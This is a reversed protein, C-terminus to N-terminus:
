SSAQDRHFRGRSLPLSITVTTGQDPESELTFEGGHLKVINHVLTLGLGVGRSAKLGGEIKEFPQLIREKEEEAIGAGNDQVIIDLADKRRRARLEIRGKEQTHAIANRLLNMVAQKMRTEDVEVKGVNAPCILELGIDEKRAWESALAVVNELMARIGVPSLDLTMQGAEFSSLDLIDNILGLLKESAAKIDGTYGRQKENLPGFYQRDLIENFGMIANLPTRLQYSVNALFDLKLKEAAELAANKERLANEVRVTDTVDTYTILVGGDPLPVTAYDVQAGDKRAFRGQRVERELGLAILKERMDRWMFDDFYGKMKEIIKSIHPEGALDEPNLGWLRGFSPNWLKLRGDGGYVAVGEALNDLTEKQVAVLTNYSSELELRSTVDEFNMMLGGITHPVALMRVASGDPLYLMEDHPDILGTFMDTWSQKFKRFDSQEPLRRTERLKEMVEGLKPKTNLWGDELGWLQSFGSNYFTLRQDADYIAIASRLQELLGRNAAEDKRIKEELAEESTYDEATGVTIGRGKVPVETVQLLFRSGGIVARMKVSQPAGEELAKRALDPGVPVIRESRKRGQSVLEKQQAVIESPRAGVRRAYAVNCWTIKQAGDRIWVPFPLSDLSDQLRENEDRQAAQEEAFIKSAGLQMTIDELWLINYQARGETDQGRVGSIKFSKTESDNKVHLTFSVGEEELREFLSELAASDGPALKYQIDGLTRVRALGLAACFGPSYAISGEPGFGCYEAPVATLFAEIRAYEGQARRDGGGFAGLFHLLGSSKRKPNSVVPPNYPGNCPCSM